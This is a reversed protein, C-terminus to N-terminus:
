SEKPCASVASGHSESPHHSYVQVQGPHHADRRRARHSAATGTTRRRGITRHRLPRQTPPAQRQRATTSTLVPPRSISSLPLVSVWHTQHKRLRSGSTRQPAAFVSAGARKLNPSGGAVVDIRRSASRSSSTTSTRRNAT